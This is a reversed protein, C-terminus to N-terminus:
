EQLMLIQVELNWCARPFCKRGGAPTSAKERCFATSISSSATTLQHSTLNTHCILCFKTAWNMWSKFCQNYPWAKDQLVPGKRNVLAPQLGQLKWHLADWQNASSVEWIYHTQKSESLQLPDSLCCVVLCHDHCKRTVTLKPLAKSRRRLGVVSSTMYWRDFVTWKEDCTVIQDLFLESSNHLILHCKLIIIKKIQLEHPM